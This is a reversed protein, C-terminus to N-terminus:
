MSGYMSFMAVYIAIVIYGAFAAVLCLVTPELKALAQKTATDLESDYFQAVTDLTSELEGTEEGVATMETLIDPLCNAEKMTDGLSRGAEIKEVMRGVETGIYYNEIVRGTIKIARTLSLGSGILTTMTNAFESAASLLYINGLVPLKLKLKAQSLKGQESAGWVLYAIVLAAVIALILFIYKSFFNSLVILSKTIAPMDSDLSDFIELFTPVVAVMLVIVVIIAIIIVFTPYILANRVKNRMKIQKDYHQYMTEFAHAMNGSAEGARITEIFTLPLLKEGRKAFSEALGRGSEVDDHVDKLLKKLVKDKMKDGILQTARSVSVGSKLIIAFQSCMIVFEKKNLKKGGVEMSLINKKETEAPELKVVIDCNEKIRTVADMEDFAEVVGKVRAGDRSLATYKYAPM